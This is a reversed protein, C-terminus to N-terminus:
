QTRGFSEVLVNYDFIDVRDNKVIDPDITSPIFGQTRTRGFNQIMLNYDFIDVDNDHDLDGPLLIPIPTSAIIAYNYIDLFGFQGNFSGYFGNADPSLNGLKFRNDSLALASDTILLTSMINNVYLYMNNNKKTFQITFWTNLQGSINQCVPQQTQPTQVWGCLDGNQYLEIWYSGVKGAILASKQNQTLLSLLKLDMKITFDGSFNFIPNDGIEMQSNVGNFQLINTNDSKNIWSVNTTKAELNGRSIIDSRTFEHGHGERFKYSAFPLNRELKYLYIGTISDTDIAPRNGLRGYLLYIDGNSDRFLRQYQIGCRMTIGNADKEKSSFVLPNNSINEWNKNELIPSRVMGFVWNQNDTCVLNKDM